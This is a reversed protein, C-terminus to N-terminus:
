EKIAEVEETDEDACVTDAEGAEDPEDASPATASAPSGGSNIRVLNGVIVVGAPDIRIFGGPGKLSIDMSAEVVLSMGSIHMNQMGLRYDADHIEAHDGVYHSTTTGNVRLRLNNKFFQDVRGGVTQFWKGDTLSYRTGRVTEMLEEEVTLHASGKIHLKDDGGICTFRGGGVKRAEGGGVSTTLEGRIGMSRNHRTVEHEDHKVLKRLNREAQVYFLESGKKDELKIENFGDGGPSSHTKWTSVTKHEPLSYPVPQGVNHLRGVIVPQDPDGDLFAVLVEQGVRPLQFMGYGAGAWGQSVRVWCSSLGADSGVRDWHFQVRVRGHEDTSIEEGRPGVVVAGQVSAAVPKAVAREVVFAEDAFCVRVAHQWGGHEEGGAHVGTVLLSRGGAFDSRPHGSLSTVMGPQLDFVNTDFAATRHGGRAAEVDRQAAEALAAQVHRVAQPADAAPTDGGEAIVAGALERYNFQEGRDFPPYVQSTAEFRQRPRRLDYGRLTAKGPRARTARRLRTAYPGLPVTSVDDYFPIANGKAAASGPVDDLVLRMQTDREEFFYFVRAEELMRSVFDLDSEDLQVRYDLVRQEGRVRVDPDLDWERLVTLAMDLASQRQFVRRNKRLSLLWVTPAIDLHYTSLGRPESRLLEASRCVGRWYHAERSVASWEPLAIKLACGVGLLAELDADADGLLATVALSWPRSIAADLRFETVQFDYGGHDFSVELHAMTSAARCLRM